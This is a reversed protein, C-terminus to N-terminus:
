ALLEQKKNHYSPRCFFYAVSWTIRQLHKRHLSHGGSQIDALMSHRHIHMRSDSLTYRNKQMKGSSYRHKHIVHSVPDGHTKATDTMLTLWNYIMSVSRSADFYQVPPPSPNLGWPHSPWGFAEQHTWQNCRSSSSSDTATLPLIYEGALCQIKKPLNNAPITTIWWTLLSQQHKIFGWDVRTSPEVKPLGHSRWWGGPWCSACLSLHAKLFDIGPDFHCDELMWWGGM